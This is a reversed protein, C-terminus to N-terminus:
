GVVEACMTFCGSLIAPSTSLPSDLVAEQQARDSLQNFLPSCCQQRHWFSVSSRTSKPPRSPYGESWTSQHWSRQSHADWQQFRIARGSSREPRRPPSLLRRQRCMHSLVGVDSQFGSSSSGSHEFVVVVSLLDRVEVMLTDWTRKRHRGEAFLCRASVGMSRTTWALHSRYVSAIYSVWQGGRLPAPAKPSNV